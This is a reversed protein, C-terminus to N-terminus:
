NLISIPHTISAGSPHQIKLYYIGDSLPPLKLENIQNFLKWRDRKRGNVDFLELDLVEFNDYIVFRMIDKAPNPTLIYKMDELQLLTFDFGTVTITKGISWTARGQNDIAKAKLGFTGTANPLWRFVEDSDLDLESIYEDNIWLEVKEIEGDIDFASVSIPITQIDQNTINFVTNVPENWYVRPIENLLGNGGDLIDDLQMSLSDLIDQHNAAGILNDWEQPDTPLNYLEESGNKYRIYRWDRTRISHNFTDLTTISPYDWKNRPDDMLPLLSRGGTEIPPLNCIETLTPYIDMLNVPSDVRQGNQSYNPIKMLFPVRTSEEWLTNKSFHLKEGQHHGHDSWLVVITNDKYISNDLADLIIGICYDVYAVNALYALILEDKIECEDYKGFQFTYAFNLAYEPIDDYDEYNIPPFEIDTDEFLDFWEQPVYLPIHPKFFGCSLFFPKNYESGLRQAAWRASHTEVYDETPVDIPGIPPVTFNNELMCPDGYLMSEEIPLAFPGTNLYGTKDGMLSKHFTWSQPIDAGDGDWHHFLKGISLTTYDNNKFHQPLTIVDSLSPVDRFYRPVPVYEEHPYVGTMLASRSPACKPAPCHANTFIVSEEALRDMNPTLAQPHGDMFGVYDNLDDVGIFLVNYPSSPNQASLHFGWFLSIFFILTKRSKM